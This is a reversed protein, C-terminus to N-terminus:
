LLNNLACEYSYVLRSIVTHSELSYKHISYIEDFSNSIKNSFYGRPFGGIVIVPNSMTFLNKSLSLLNTSNGKKSLAIVHDPNIQSILDNFSMRKLELLVGDDSEIKKNEFLQFMLTVFRNYSKPLRVGDNLFIIEDNITHIYVKMLNDMFLPTSTASIISTHILDPRGRKEEDELNRMYFHHYSRDLFMEKIIKTKTKATNRNNLRSAITEPLLELASDCLILHLLM